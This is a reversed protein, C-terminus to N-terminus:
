RSPAKIRLGPQLFSRPDWAAALRFLGGTRFPEAAVKASTNGKVIRLQTITNISM